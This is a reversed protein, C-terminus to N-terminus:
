EQHGTGGSERASESAILKANLQESSSANVGRLTAL